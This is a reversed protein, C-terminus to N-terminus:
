TTVAKCACPWTDFGSLGAGPEVCVAEYGSGNCKGLPCTSDPPVGDGGMLDHWAPLPPGPEECTPCGHGDCSSCIGDWGCAPCIAGPPHNLACREHDSM